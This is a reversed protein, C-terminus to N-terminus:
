GHERLHEELEAEAERLMRLENLCADMALTSRIEGSASNAELLDSHVKEIEGALLKLREAVRRAPEFGPPLGPEEDQVNAEFITDLMTQVMGEFGRAQDPTVFALPQLILLLEDMAADAAALSRSRVGQWHESLGESTWYPSALTTRIRDWFRASEELLASVAPNLERHLRRKSSLDSLERIMSMLERRRSEEPGVKQARGQTLGATILGGALAVVGAALFGRPVGLEPVLLVIGLAGFVVAAVFAPFGNPTPSAM